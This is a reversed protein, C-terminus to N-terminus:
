LGIDYGGRGEIDDPDDTGELDENTDDGDIEIASVESVMSLQTPFLTLSTQVIAGILLTCSILIAITKMTKTTTAMRKGLIPFTILRTAWQSLTSTSLM